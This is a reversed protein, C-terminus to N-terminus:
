GKINKFVSDWVSSDLQSLDIEATDVAYKIANIVAVGGNIVVEKGIVLTIAPGNVSINNTCFVETELTEVDERSSIEEILEDITYDSLCM